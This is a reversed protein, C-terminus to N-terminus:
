VPKCKGARILGVRRAIAEEQSSFPGWQEIIELNDDGLQDSSIIECNGASRKVIYWTQSNSM